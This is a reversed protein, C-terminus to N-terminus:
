EVVKVKYGLLKSIQEVSLEKVEQEREWVLILNNKDFSGYFSKLEKLEYVKAISFKDNNKHLLDHTFYDFGWTEVDTMLYIKDDNTCGVHCCAGGKLIVIHKGPILDAKTFKKIKLCSLTVVNLDTDDCSYRHTFLAYRSSMGVEQWVVKFYIDHRILLMATENFNKCNFENYVVIGIQGNIFDSNFDNWTEYVKKDLMNCKRGNINVIFSM